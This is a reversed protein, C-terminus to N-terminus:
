IVVRIQDRLFLIRMLTTLVSRRLQRFKCKRGYDKDAMKADGDVIPEM